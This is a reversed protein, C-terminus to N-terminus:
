RCVAVAEIEIVMDGNFKGVQMTSRAPPDNPFYQKYVENFKAFEDIDKVFVLTKVVHELDSGAEELIIKMNKIIQETQGAIDGPAIMEQTVPDNATIGATYILDGVKYAQSYWGGPKAAKDTKIVVKEM